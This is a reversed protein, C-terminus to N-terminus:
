VPQLNCTAFWGVVRRPTNWLCSFWCSGVKPTDWQAVEGMADRRTEEDLAADGKSGTGWGCGTGPSCGVGTNVAVWCYM